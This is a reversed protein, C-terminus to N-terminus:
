MTNRTNTLDEGGEGLGLLRRQRETLEALDVEGDDSGDALIRRHSTECCCCTETTSSSSSSSGEGLNRKSAEITQLKLQEDKSITEGTLKRRIVRSCSKKKQVGYNSYSGPNRVPDTDSEPGYKGRVAEAHGGGGGGLNRGIRAREM